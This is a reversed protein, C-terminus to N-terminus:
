IGHESYCTVNWRTLKWSHLTLKAITFVLSVNHSRLFYVVLKIYISDFCM